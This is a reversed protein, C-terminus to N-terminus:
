SLGVTVTATVWRSVRSGKLCSKCRDKTERVKRDAQKYPEWKEGGGKETESDGKNNQRWKKGANFWREWGQPKFLMMKGMGDAFFSRWLRLWYHCRHPMLAPAAIGALLSTWVRDCTTQPSPCVCPCQKLFAQTWPVIQLEPLCCYSINLFFFLGWFIMQIALPGPATHKM